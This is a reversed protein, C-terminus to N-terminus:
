LAQAKEAASPKLRRELREIDKKVGARSDLQMARQLLPLAERCAKVGRGAMDVDHSGTKGLVAWGAAKYLKSKAQDPTDAAETLAMAKAVIQLAERGKVKGEIVAEAVEDQVITHLDRHFRDPPTIGSALAYDAIELARAYNGADIHWVLVTAIVEDQTGPRAQLVGDVYADYEPLLVRKAEIKKEVSQLDKLRLRHQHLQALQLEYATGVTQGHVDATAAQAAQALALHHMRHRQALTQRM